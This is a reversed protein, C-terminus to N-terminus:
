LFENVIAAAQQFKEEWNGKIEVYKIGNQKFTKKHNGDLLDRATKDIRNGM